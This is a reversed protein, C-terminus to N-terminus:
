KFKLHLINVLNLNNLLMNKLNTKITLSKFTLIMKQSYFVFIILKRLTYFTITSGM